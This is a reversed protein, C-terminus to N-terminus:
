YYYIVPNEQSLSGNKLLRNILQRGTLLNDEENGEVDPDIWCRESLDRTEPVYTNGIEAIAINVSAAVVDALPVSLGKPWFEYIQYGKWKTTM